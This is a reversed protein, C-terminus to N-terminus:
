KRAPTEITSQFTLPVVTKVQMVVDIEQYKKIKIGDPKAIEFEGLTPHWGIIGFKGNLEKVLVTVM